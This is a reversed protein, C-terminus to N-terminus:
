SSNLSETIALRVMVGGLSGTKNEMLVTMVYPPVVCGGLSHTQHRHIHSLFMFSLYKEIVALAFIIIEM